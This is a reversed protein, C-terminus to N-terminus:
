NVHMSLAIDLRGFISLLQSDDKGEVMPICSVLSSGVTTGVAKEDKRRNASAINDSDPIRVLIRFNEACDDFVDLCSNWQGDYAM